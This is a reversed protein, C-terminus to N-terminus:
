RKESKLVELAPRLICADLRDKPHDGQKTLLLGELNLVRIPVDDLRIAEIYPEM